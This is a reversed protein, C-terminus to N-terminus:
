SSIQLVNWENHSARFPTTDRRTGSQKAAKKPIGEVKGGRQIGALAFATGAASARSLRVAANL